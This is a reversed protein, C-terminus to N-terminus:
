GALVLVYVDKNWFHFINTQGSGHLMRWVLAQDLSLLYRSCARLWGQRCVGAYPVCFQHQLVSAIAKQSNTTEKQFVTFVGHHLEKTRQWVQATNLGRGSLM